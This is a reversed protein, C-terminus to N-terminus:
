IDNHIRMLTSLSNQEQLLGTFNSITRLPEQLDHSAVYAFQELEKNIYAVEEMMINFSSALQGIEDNSYIVAKDKFNGKAVQESARIIEDIGKSIGRSVSIILMLGSIEVTIVIAFLLKLMLDELWRSGEGLTASFENEMTTFNVNLKM